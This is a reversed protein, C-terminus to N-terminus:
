SLKLLGSDMIHQGFTQLQQKVDEPLADLIRENEAHRSASFRKPLQDAAADGFVIRMAFSCRDHLRQAIALERTRTKFRLMQEVIRAIPRNRRLPELAPESAWMRELGNLADKLKAELFRFGVRRFPDSAKSFGYPGWQLRPWLAQDLANALDSMQGRINEPPKSSWISPFRTQYSARLVCLDRLALIFKTVALQERTEPGVIEVTLNEEDIVIDLPHPLLEPEPLGRSRADALRQQGQEKLSRLQVYRRAEAELAQRKTEEAEQILERQLLRNGGKLADNVRRRQIAEIAPMTVVKGNQTVKVPEFAIRGMGLMASTPDSNSPAKMKPPRGRPNGSRGPPFQHQKPPKGYGVAYRDSEGDPTASPSRQGQPSRKSAM